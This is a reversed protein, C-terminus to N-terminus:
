QQLQRIYSFEWVDFHDRLELTNLTPALNNMPTPCAQAVEKGRERPPRAASIPQMGRLKRSANRLVDAKLRRVALIKDADLAFHRQMRLSQQGILQVPLRQRRVMAGRQTQDGWELVTDFLEFLNASDDVGVPARM